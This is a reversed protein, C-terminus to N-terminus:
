TVVSDPLTYAIDAGQKQLKFSLKNFTLVFFM